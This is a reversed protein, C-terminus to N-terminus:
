GSSSTKRLRNTRLQVRMRGWSVLRAGNSSVRGTSQEDGTKNDGATSDERLFIYCFLLISPCKRALPMIGMSDEFLVHKGPNVLDRSDRDAELSVVASPVPEVFHAVHDM